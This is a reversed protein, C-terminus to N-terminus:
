FWWGISITNYRTAESARRSCPKICNTILSEMGWFFGFNKTTFSSSVLCIFLASMLSNQGCILYSHVTHKWEFVEAQSHKFIGEKVWLLSFWLSSITIAISVSTGLADTTWWETSVLNWAFVKMRYARYKHNLLSTLFLM